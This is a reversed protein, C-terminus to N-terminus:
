VTRHGEALAESSLGRLKRRVRLIKVGITSKPMALLEAIEEYSYGELYYEFIRRDQPELQAFLFERLDRSALEEHADLRNSVAMSLGHHICFEAYDGYYTFRKSRRLNDIILNRLVRKCFPLRKALPMAGLEPLRAFVKLYFDQLFDKALNDDVGFRGCLGRAYGSLEEGWQEDLAALSLEPDVLTRAKIM